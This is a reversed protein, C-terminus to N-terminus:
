SELGEIDHRYSGTELYHRLKTVSNRLYRPTFDRVSATTSALVDNMLLLNRSALLAEFQADSHDPLTRQAVYGELLAEHRRDSSRLYYTAIALDLLPPGWGSDDFDFVAIKDHDLMLNGGHLDAHLPFVPSAAVVQAFAARTRALSETVVQRADAGWLDLDVHESLRDVDNFLPDDFRPMEAGPPLQWAAGHDHLDAALSGVVRLHAVSAGFGLERGPLWSMLVAPLSRGLEEVYVESRLAGERTRQPVPVLLDTDHALATLWEAEATLEGPTRRSNVNLRLAFLHGTTTEVRFTANYDHRIVRLRAVEIPWERLVDFAARRLRYVQQRSTLDEFGIM